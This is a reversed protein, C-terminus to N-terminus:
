PIEGEEQSAQRAVHGVQARDRGGRAPAWLDSALRWAASVCPRPTLAGSPFVVGVVGPTVSFDRAIVCGDWLTVFIVLAYLPQPLHQRTTSEQSLAQGFECPSRAIVLPSPWRVRQTVSRGIGDCWVAYVDGNGPSGGVNKGDGLSYHLRMHVHLSLVLCLPCLTSKTVNWRIGVFIGECGTKMRHPAPGAQM